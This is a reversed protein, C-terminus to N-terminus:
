AKKCGQVRSPRDPSWFFSCQHGFGSKKIIALTYESVSGALQFPVLKSSWLDLELTFVSVGSAQRTGPHYYGLRVVLRSSIIHNTFTSALKPEHGKLVSMAHRECWALLRQVSGLWCCQSYPNRMHMALSFYYDGANQAIHEM